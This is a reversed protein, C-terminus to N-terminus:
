PKEAVDATWDHWIADLRALAAPSLPGREVAAAAQELQGLTSIGLLITSVSAHALPFRLAAEVLSAAHGEEVLVRLGQARRVDAAYDRGSGIPAVSPMALPHRVETGSLAGGALARVVITGVGAERARELLGVFDPAPFGAPVPRAASPNLLNCFIQATHVGAGLAEPLASPEGSATIGYFRVKGQTRLRELAPVVRQTLEAVTVSRPGALGTIQNHLQFLDVRALGLRSLSGELARSVAGPVDALDTRELRFKTGVLPNVRLARLAEGLHRESLGQGYSAATDFYTIGLELARAVARERETPAGRVILGGVDGCGFGLASVRLGTAGLPRQEM